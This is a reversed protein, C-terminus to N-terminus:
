ILTNFGISPNASGTVKSQHNQFLLRQRLHKGGPPAEAGSGIFM